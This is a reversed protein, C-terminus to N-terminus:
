PIGKGRNPEILGPKRKSSILINEFSDKITQANQNKIPVTWGFQSFKDIIVLM